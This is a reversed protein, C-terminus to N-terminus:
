RMLPQDAHGTYKVNQSVGIRPLDSLQNLPPSVFKITSMTELM